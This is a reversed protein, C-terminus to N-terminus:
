CNSDLCQCKRQVIKNVIFQQPYLCFPQLRGITLRKFTRSKNNVVSQFILNLIVRLGVNPHHITCVISWHNLYTAYGISNSLCIFFFNDPLNYPKCLSKNAVGKHLSGTRAISDKDVQYCTKQLGAVLQNPKLALSHSSITRVDGDYISFSSTHNTQHAM